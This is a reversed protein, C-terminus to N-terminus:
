VQEGGPGSPGDSYAEKGFTLRHLSLTDGNKEPGNNFGIAHSVTGDATTLVVGEYNAMTDYWGVPVDYTCTAADRIFDPLGSAETAYVHVTWCGEFTLNLAGDNMVMTPVGQNARVSEDLFFLSMAAENEVSFHATPVTQHQWGSGGTNLVLRQRDTPLTVQIKVKAPDSARVGSADLTIDAASTAVQDGVASGQPDPGLTVLAVTYENDAVPASVGQVSFDVVAPGQQVGQQTDLHVQVDGAVVGDFRASTYPAYKMFVGETIPSQLTISAAGAPTAGPTNRYWVSCADIALTDNGTSDVNVMTRNNAGEAQNNNMFATDCGLDLRNAGGGLSVMNEGRAVLGDVIFDDDGDGTTLTSFEQDRMDLRSGGGGLAVEWPQPSTGAMSLDHSGNGLATIRGGSGQAGFQLRGQSELTLRVGDVTVAHEGSGSLTIAKMGDRASVTLDASNAVSLMDEEFAVSFCTQPDSAPFSNASNGGNEEFCGAPDTPNQGTDTDDGSLAIGREMGSAATSFGESVDRGLAFVTGLAIAGVLGMLVAYETATAGKTGTPIGVNKKM